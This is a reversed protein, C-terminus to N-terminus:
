KYECLYKHVLVDVTVNGVYLWDLLV